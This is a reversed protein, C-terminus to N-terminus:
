WRPSPLPPRKSRPREANVSVTESAQGVMMQFDLVPAAGVTLILGTRAANQFGTKSVTLDYPGIPLDLLAYRGQEDTTATQTASTATNKISVTAGPVAANSADTVRGTISATAAQGFLHGPSLIFGLCFVVLLLVAPNTRSRM